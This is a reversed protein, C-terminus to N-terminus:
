GSLKINNDRVPYSFGNVWRTKSLGIEDHGPCASLAVVLDMTMMDLARVL